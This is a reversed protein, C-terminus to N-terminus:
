IEDFKAALIFDSETLGDIKHTWILAKVRGWGLEFDAHHGQQECIAGAANVFDLASEFDSFTWVRELHHGDIVDWDSNVESKMGEAEQATMPPIGGKCPICERNALDSM